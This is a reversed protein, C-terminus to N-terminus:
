PGPPWSGCLDAIASLQDKSVWSPNSGQPQRLVELDDVGASRIEEELVGRRLLPLHM